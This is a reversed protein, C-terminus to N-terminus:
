KQAAAADALRRTLAPGLSDVTTSRTAGYSGAVPGTPSYCVVSAYVDDPSETVTEDVGVAVVWSEPDVDPGNVFVQGTSTFDGMGGGTLQTGAPCRGSAVITDTLGNSDFDAAVGPFDFSGTRGATRAFSSASLGDVADANLSPVKVANNVKLVPTGAKANLALATGGTNTLTSPATESNSRGLIFNGGTAAVATGSGLLAATVAGAAFYTLRSSRM